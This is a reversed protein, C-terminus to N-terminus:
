FEQLSMATFDAFDDWLALCELTTELYGSSIFVLKV